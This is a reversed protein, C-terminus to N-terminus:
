DYELTYFADFSSQEGAQAELRVRPTLQYLVKVVQNLGDLSQEYSLTARSSLRKGVSVIATGLDEGDGARVDFSDIKLAEALNAQFNVSEAQSLLASAAVQMLVFEQQGASDLGHGLVLWSLKETDPMAPDSYLTVVPRQVTGRVQVGATVTPTKRVALVDLGPNDVPGAFRLVGRTIDLTQAYAAYRGESVQITGEGRLGSGATVLRLRGELKADLGGGKFLFDDGLGLVLDLALPYRQAVTPERPQQGIVVVDSSLEPRSAEPIELRARDAVLEGSLKLRREVFALQTSGSVSVRRDSRHVAAFKEFVLTLGARPNRLEAEGSVVIRGSRGKLEGQRVRVRDDDLVLDLLGDEISVGAEPMAFRIGEARVSGRARPVALSGSGALDAALRADLRVGVPLFARLARLDPVDVRAQWALPSSRALVPRGADFVLPAQAELRARGAARTDLDFRARVEGASAKVALVLRTIGLVLAPDTLRLDGGERELRAEGDLTTGLRLNWDGNFWLDTTAPPAPEILALLPAAPLNTLTGRTDFAGGVRRLGAVDVRGGALTFALTDVQQRERSLLLTAPALLRMPWAGEVAASKLQGRWTQSADLGGALTATAHWDPLRLDLALTHADRRGSLTTEVSELKLGAVRLGRAEARGAFAGRAGAVLNWEADLSEVAIEGLLRLRSAAIRSEIAPAAPSGSLTGRSTLRGAFGLNLRALAPATIDWNLRDGARGWAGEVRARNGALDVDVDARALHADAYRLSASGRVPRGELEGLPLTLRADVRLTPALAGSAEGRANLRGRPFNGLRAPNIRSADFNLSFARTADLKMTGHALLRGGAGAFDAETLALVSAAHLLTFRGQGHSGQVTGALTQRQLDGALDLQTELRTTALDRHLGALDLRPSALSLKFRGDRWAGQGRLQGAAGLDVALDSFAMATFDGLAAGTLQVLPLRERDLRGPLRNVLSFSGFVREGPRGEFVGAFAFEAEPADASFHRLAIGEGSLLLSVLKIPAFPAAEGRAILRMAGSGADLEFRPAALSGALRATGRVPLPEDRAAELRGTLTFPADKGLELTATMDAWPTNARVGQLRWLDGRGDLAGVLGTFVLVAGAEDVRAAQGIEIANVRLAVPLRLSDPLRLPTTDAQKVVVRLSRITVREIDVRGHWLARPQWVVHLHRIEIRQTATDLRLREIDFAGALTGRVGAIELTGGSLTTAMGALAVLGPATALLFAAAAALVALGAGAAILGRLARRM